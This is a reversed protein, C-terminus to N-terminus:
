KFSPLRVQPLPIYESIGKERLKDMKTLMVPDGLHGDYGSAMITSALRIESLVEVSKGWLKEDVNRHVSMVEISFLGDKTQDQPSVNRPNARSVKCGSGNHLQHIEM